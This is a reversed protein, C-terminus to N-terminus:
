ARWWSFREGSWVSVRLLITTGALLAIAGFAVVANDNRGVGYALWLAGEFAVLMWTASSIGDVEDSRFAVVISPTIQVVFAVSLVAGVLNLGGTTAAAVFLGAWLAAAWWRPVAARRVLAAVTILYSASAIADAVTAWWLGRLATYITWAATSIAGLMAWDPSVGGTEGTRLVRRAQPLIAVASAVFALAGVIEIM